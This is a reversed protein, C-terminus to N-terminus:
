KLNFYFSRKIKEKKEKFNEPIKYRGKAIELERNGGYWKESILLDIINYIINGKKM